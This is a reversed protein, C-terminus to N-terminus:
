PRTRTGGVRPTTRCCRRVARRDPQPRPVRVGVVGLVVDVEEALRDGLDRGGMAARNQNPGVRGPRRMRHQVPEGLLAPDRGCTSYEIPNGTFLPIATWSAM